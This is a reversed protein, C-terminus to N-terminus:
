SLQLILERLLLTEVGKERSIRGCYVIYADESGPLPKRPLAIGNPVIRLKHPAIRLAAQEALFRSPALFLDVKEYSMFFLHWYAELSLLWSELLGDHCRKVAPRWFQKGRCQGCVSGRRLMLYSPCLVKYDHLTMIVKLGAKKLVPIIAPTLQHYINHLHAIQPRTHRVLAGIRSAAKSNHIFRFGGGIKAAIGPRDETRRFDINPAFFPSFPSAINAPHQMSFEIVEHGMRKLGAREEFFVTESGGRPYFYKNALLIRM